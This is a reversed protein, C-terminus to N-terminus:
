RISCLSLIPCPMKQWIRVLARQTADEALQPDRLVRYAVQQLHGYASGTIEAFAAEDGHQARVVLETDMVRTVARSRHDLCRPHPAKM